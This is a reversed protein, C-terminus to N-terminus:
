STEPRTGAKLSQIFHSLEAYMQSSNESHQQILKIIASGVIIGDAGAKSLTRVQAPTSIGFGVCVPLQTQQKVKKLIPYVQRHLNERVGTVGLRSVIYVFGRAADLIMRLRKGRTLPSVLFVTDIGTHRAAQIFARAEEIPVDAILISNVGTCHAKRYFSIIEYRYILNAYILLGIPADTFTRVKEIFQFCRDPTIGAKLAQFDAEQITPGDATPDSFPLGLELIDAGSSVLTEVIKLSSDFDPYGIVSFPILAAEKRSKLQRFTEAYSKM